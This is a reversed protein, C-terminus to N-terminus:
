ISSSIKEESEWSLKQIDAIRKAIAEPLEVTNGDAFILKKGDVKVDYFNMQPSGIFGAVFKNM